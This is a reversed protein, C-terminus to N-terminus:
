PECIFFFIHYKSHIYIKPHVTALLSMFNLVIKCFKRYKSVLPLLFTMQVKIRLSIKKLGYQQPKIADLQILDSM